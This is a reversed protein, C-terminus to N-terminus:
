SEGIEDGEEVGSSTEGQKEAGRIMIGLFKSFEWTCVLAQRGATTIRYANRRPSEVWRFASLERVHHYVAGQTLGTGETLDQTTREDDWLLQLVRLRMENGLASFVRAAEGVDGEPGLSENTDALQWTPGNRNGLALAVVMAASMGEEPLSEALDMCLAQDTQGSRRKATGSQSVPRDREVARALNNMRTQMEDMQERLMQVEREM